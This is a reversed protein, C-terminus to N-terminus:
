NIIDFECCMIEGFYKDYGTKRCPKVGLPLLAELHNDVERLQSQQTEFHHVLVQVLVVEYPGERERNATHDRAVSM